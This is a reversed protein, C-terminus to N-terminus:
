YDSVTVKFNVQPLSDLCYTNVSGTMDCRIQGRKDAIVGMSSRKSQKFQRRMDMNHLLERRIGTLIFYLYCQLKRDIFM